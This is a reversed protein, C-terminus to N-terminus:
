FLFVWALFLSAIWMLSVKSPVSSAAGKEFMLKGGGVDYIMNTGAQLMSGLITGIPEDAPMPLMTLCQLGTATDKYFYHVTTLEMAPSDVGDFVLTIKPFTLEAVSKITYCLDFVEDDTGSSDAPESKIKSVLSQRVANYADEQLWTVAISTSLAVGGSNGDAALDFAGAPISTLSEGDVQIGTLKVYYLDPYANSQLLPTSRSHKTQPVAQDGLLVVSTSSSSNSDDPTLFYSFRSIHLQTLISLGGKSFGISGDLDVTTETSCGFVVSGSIPPAGTGTGVTLTEKALYGTSNTGEDELGYVYVYECPGAEDACDNATKSLATLCTPSACPVNSESFAPATAPPCQVWLFDNFNDVVGSFTQQGVSVSYVIIGANDAAAGGLQDGDGGSKSSHLAKKIVAAGGTTAVQEILNKGIKKIFPSRAIAGVAAAAQSSALPPQLLLHLALLLATVAVVGSAPRAM